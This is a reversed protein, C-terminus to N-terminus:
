PTDTLEEVVFPHTRLRPPSASITPVPAPPPTPVNAPPPTPAVAPSSTTAKVVQPSTLKIPETSIFDVQGSDEQNYINYFLKILQLTTLQQAKIGVRNLQRVAQDRRPDLMAHTKKLRDTKLFGLELGYVPIAIYFNKDLVGMEKVTAQIFSKYRAIMSSLLANTQSKQALDLKNVYSSLDLKTSHIVIQLPFSLSNLMQAFSSVIAIQEKDSLLGFNIASVKLVLTAGGDKLLIIDEQIDAIKLTQQTTNM